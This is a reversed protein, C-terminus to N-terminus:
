FNPDDPVVSRPSAGPVKRPTPRPLSARASPAPPLTAPSPPSAPPSSAAPPASALVTVPAPGTVAPAVAPVPASLPASPAAGGPGGAPGRLALAVVALAGVGAVLGLVLRRGGAHPAPLETPEPPDATASRERANRLIVSGPSTTTTPATSSAPPLSPAAVAGDVTLVEVRRRNSSSIRRLPARKIQEGLGPVSPPESGTSLWHAELSSEAVDTPTDRELCWVALEVGLDRISSWREEPDKALGRRVIAWLDADGAGRDTLPVPEHRQISALLANYNAGEFPRVGTVMEYLMVSFAWVDTRADVDVEGRAQEPSMYDPSGLVAGAVTVGVKVGDDRLKAIGFDVLKPTVIGNASGVLVINDPKLDRHVIGNRHALVLASAVPLLTRVASIAPLRIQTALVQGLSEGALFEMVIFPDRQETEGFDFVRVISPHDLRASARAEQLLRASAEPTAIEHRVLKVAVDVDLTKNHALWVAGMGGEGLLRELRYKGAIVDGQQYRGASAGADAAATDSVHTARLALDLGPEAPTDTEM